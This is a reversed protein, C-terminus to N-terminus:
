RQSPSSDGVASTEQVTPFVGTSRFKIIDPQGARALMRVQADWLDWSDSKAALEVPDNVLKYGLGQMVPGWAAEIAFVSEPSLVESWQGSRAARVFPVSARTGKTTSWKESEKKELARMRRATSLEVARKLREEHPPIGLLTAVKALERVTDGLLDEYRIFLFDRRSPSMALWGMVHDAWRGFRPNLKDEIFDRVYGDVSSGTSLLKIKVLYHYRSVAVDRPDRAIYIVKQYDPHFSEHTKMYRPRPLRRLKRNPMGYVSPVRLEVNAFTVAEDTYVLNGLLFRMWTNGSKPYSVVFVDDPFTTMYRGPALRGLFKAWSSRFHILLKARIEDVKM